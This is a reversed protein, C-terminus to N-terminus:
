KPMKKKPRGRPRLTVELRLKAAAKAVWGDAGFPCGRAVCRRLAALEAESQVKNVSARWRAPRPVPWDDLLARAEPTGRVRQWLSCWRWNEARRVLGARLANREV